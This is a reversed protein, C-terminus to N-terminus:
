VTITDDGPADGCCRWPALAAACGAVVAAGLLWGALVDSPWHVGLYVRTFGVGAVPIAGAVVTLAWWGGRVGCLRLLWVLTVCAVSAAVAHGSPFAALTASDVPHTWHPRPRGVAAKVAQELAWGLGCAALAWLALRRRGRLLLVAAAAVSLLRMTLPGWVWTTFALNLATWGPHALAVAHLRDDVRADLPLLPPRGPALLVLALLVAFGAAPLAAWVACRRRSPDAAM